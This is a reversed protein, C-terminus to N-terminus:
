WLIKKKGGKKPKNKDATALEGIRETMIKKNVVQAVEGLNNSKNIIDKDIRNDGDAAAFAIKAGKHYLCQFPYRISDMIDATGDNGHEPKGEIIEGKGDTKWMYNGFAEMVQKNNPTDIVYYKRVNNSDVIKGQLASIGASVDKDFKPIKLGKRKLTKIYAPYAQDVYWKEIGWDDNMEVAYKVIDDLELGTMAMTDLHYIDGNPMLGLVILSTADSFGWDAGGIFRCGLDKLYQKLFMFSDIKMDQGMVKEIAARVSLVNETNSFRPYVLGSTSPKNCLLQAEAMDADLQRFNNHVAVLPKYLNGFDEQPRDVLYNRMVPLMKHDAIGAYAEFREYKVKEEDPLVEWDETKLNVMPLNRSIYRTVKPENTRAVEHPIREAIDIINWRLIEGNAKKTQKLTKEMLGGAFKRTSLYVTLPFYNKFVSPIMKAENLARPDQVVDVEDIFLMPVHESNHVLINNAIYTKNNFNSNEVGIGVLEQTGILNVEVVEKNLKEKVRKNFSRGKRTNHIKSNEWYFGRSGIADLSNGSDIAFRINDSIPLKYKLCDVYYHMSDIALQRSDSIPIRITNYEGFRHLKAEYGLKNIRKIIVTNEEDSFDLTAIDIPNEKYKGLIKRHCTGDDMILFSLGELGIKSLWNESVNKKNEIYCIDHVKKFYKHAQTYLRYGERDPVIHSYIKYKIFTKQIQKLYELQEKCHFVQYRCSGSPLKQVSADGLLTGLVMNKLTWNVQTLSPSPEIYDSDGFSIVRDGIKINGSNVFGRQTFIKHGLSVLLNSGDNFKIELSDNKVTGLSTVKNLIFSDEWFDYTRLIDGIKIESAIKPGDETDVITRPDICNAGRITCIVIRIYINQGEDTLWEIKKKNDSVNKWGNAELYPKIKRFFSNVYEVAKAAQDQIAAMHAISIRFHVLCLVEIAAASLTKYSDRSSLMCVQPVDQSEGTKMLQYIRWMAEVPSHTSEPHVVGMPFLIDLFLYMWDRLEEKSNLPKLLLETKIDHETKSM